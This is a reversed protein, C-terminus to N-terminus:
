VGLIIPQQYRQVLQIMGSTNLADMQKDTLPTVLRDVPMRFLASLEPNDAIELDSLNIHDTMGCAYAGLIRFYNELELKTEPFLACGSFLIQGPYKEKLASFGDVLDFCLVPTLDYPTLDLGACHLSTKIQLKAAGHYDLEPLETVLQNLHNDRRCWAIDATTDHPNYYPSKYVTYIGSEQKVIINFSPSFATYASYDIDPYTKFIDPRLLAINMCVINFDPDESCHDLVMCEALKGLLQM